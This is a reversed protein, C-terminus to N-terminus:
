FQAYMFETTTGVFGYPATVFFLALYIVWRVALPREAILDRIHLGKEKMLSVIFLVIVGVIMVKWDRRNLGMSLLRGDNLATFSFNVFMRAFATFALGATACADFLWGINVLIFTRIISVVKWPKSDVNVHCAKAMKGYVPKLLNSLAIILGNYFGYIIYKWAAGHWVGVIFFILLNCLCIPIVRGTTKGFKKQAAKGLKHVRKSISFPYFVYDKMWTGLTIHWRRWFEGISKSFYPQRFNEDLHIGFIEAAGIVVDIGGSFDCYEYISFTLLAVVIHAGSYQNLNSFIINSVPYARDALILKKALGWGIRQLGYEVNKIDFTNGGLLQPALRDYRGIPGQLIQPLFATFLALKFVNKEPEYKKYYIDIVYSMIQFTYFSIGLPMFLSLKNMHFGTSAFLMNMNGITFNCYKLFVLIGFNSFLALLLWRRRVKKDKAEHMIRAICYSSLVTFSIYWFCRLGYTAYFALSMGLLLIWQYKKPILYYIVATGVITLFFGASIFSMVMDGTQSGYIFINIHPIVREGRGVTVSM